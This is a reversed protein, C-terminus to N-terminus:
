ATEFEKLAKLLMQGWDYIDLLQDTLKSNFFFYPWEVILKQGDFRIIANNLAKRRDFLTKRLSQDFWQSIKMSSSKLEFAPDFVPDEFKVNGALKLLRTLPLRRSLEFQESSLFDPRFELITKQTRNGGIKTEELYIQVAAWTSNGEIRPAKWSRDSLKTANPLYQLNLQKALLSFQVELRTEFSKFWRTFVWGLGAFLVGVVVLTLILDM